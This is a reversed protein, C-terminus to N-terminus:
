GHREEASWSSDRSGSMVSISPLMGAVVLKVKYRDPHHVLRDKAGPLEM